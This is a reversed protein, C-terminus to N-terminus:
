RRKLEDAYRVLNPQRWLNRRVRRKAALAEYLEFPAVKGLNRTLLWAYAVAASRGHGAKCHVLVKGRARGVFAVAARLDEVTPEVHDVTPLWLQDVGLRAYAATPGEYEACLNVVATVGLAALREPHRLAGCPAAGVLVKDDIATWLGARPPLLHLRAYTLPLTPYFYAKSAVASLAPPLLKQTFLGFGVCFTTGMTLFARRLLALTGAWATPSMM